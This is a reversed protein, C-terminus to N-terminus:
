RSGEGAPMEMMGWGRWAAETWSGAELVRLLLGREAATEPGREGFRAVYAELAKSAAEEERERVKRYPEDIWRLAEQADAAKPLEHGMKQDEWVRVNIGDRRFIEAGNTIELLNGDHRGTMAAIRRQRLLGMTAPGPKAYNSRYYRGLGDPVNQYCSMGIIPVAGGFVEPFCVQSITAVRGGGSLGSIYVRRPDIHFRRSATAAADLALQVRNVLTRNNGSNAAGIVIINLEDLAADFIPPCVGAPGADVWVLLGAPTRPSYDRPLRVQFESADLTRDAGPSRQAGAFLRNAAAQKDLMV